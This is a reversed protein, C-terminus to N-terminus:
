EIVKVVPKLGLSKAMQMLTDWPSDSHFMEARYWTSQAMGAQKAAANVTLGKQERKNQIMILLDMKKLSAMLIM